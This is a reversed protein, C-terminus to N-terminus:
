MIKVFVVIVLMFDIYVESLFLWVNHNFPVLNNNQKLWLIAIEDNGLEYRFFLM